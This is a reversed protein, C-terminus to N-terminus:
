QHMEPTQDAKMMDKVQKDSMAMNHAKKAHNKIISTLEKEDHSRCMFGCEPNCAVSKLTGIAKDEKKIEKKDEKKADMKTQDQAFTATSFSVALILVLFAAFIQKIM